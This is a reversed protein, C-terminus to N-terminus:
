SAKLGGIITPTSPAGAPLKFTSVPYGATFTGDPDVIVWSCPSDIAKSDAVFCAAFGGSPLVWKRIPSSLKLSVTKMRRRIDAFTGGCDQLIKWSNQAPPPINGYKKIAAMGDIGEIILGYARSDWTWSPHIPGHGHGSTPIARACPLCVGVPTLFPEIMVLHEAWWDAADEYLTSLKQQSSEYLIAAQPGGWIYSHPDCAAQENGDYSSASLCQHGNTAMTQYLGYLKLLASKQSIAPPRGHALRSWVLANAGGEFKQNPTGDVAVLNAAPVFSPDGTHLTWLADLRPQEIGVKTEEEPQFGTRM